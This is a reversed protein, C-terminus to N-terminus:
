RRFISLVLEYVLTVPCSFHATAFANPEMSFNGARASQPRSQHHLTAHMKQAYAHCEDGNASGPSALGAWVLVDGGNSWLDIIGNFIIMYHRNIAAFLYVAFLKRLFLITVHHISTSCGSHLPTVLPRVGGPSVRWPPSM